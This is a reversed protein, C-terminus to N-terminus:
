RCQRIPPRQATFGPARRAHQDCSLSGLSKRQRTIYPNHIKRESEPTDQIVKSNRKTNKVQRQIPTESEVSNQTTAERGSANSFRVHGHSADSPDELCDASSIPATNANDFAEGGTERCGDVCMSGECADEPEGDSEDPSSAPTPLRFEDLAVKKEPASPMPEVDGSNKSHIAIFRTTVLSDAPKNVVADPSSAPTPLRFEDLVAKTELTSLMAEVDGPNNLHTANFRTTLLSDVPQAGDPGVKKCAGLPFQREIIEIDDEEESSSGSEPPTPLCFEEFHTFEQTETAVNGDGYFADFREITSKSGLNSATAGSPAIGVSAMDECHNSEILPQEKDVVPPDTALYSSAGVGASADVALDAVSRVAVNSVCTLAIQGSTVTDPFLPFLTDLADDRFGRVRAVKIQKEDTRDHSAEIKRLSMATNGTFCEKKSPCTTKLLRGALLRRRLSSAGARELSLQVRTYQRLINLRQADEVHTLKWRTSNAALTKSSDKRNAGGTGEVQSERFHQSFNMAIRSLTPEGEFMSVTLRTTFAKQNKLAHQLTREKQKSSNLTKEEAGESVLCVVRGERQRGTRGVRQLSRIPSSLTDFNVIM